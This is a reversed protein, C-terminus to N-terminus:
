LKDIKKNIWDNAETENKCVIYDVPQKQIAFIAKLINRIIASQIIYVTGLCYNIMLEKNKKLWNAQMIQYNIGPLVADTADFILVVQEKLDYIQKIEELYLTFNEKTAQNGTFTIKIKPSDTADITAYKKM